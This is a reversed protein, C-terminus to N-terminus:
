KHIPHISFETSNFSNDNLISQSNQLSDTSLSFDNSLKLIKSKNKSIKSSMIKFILGFIIVKIMMLCYM